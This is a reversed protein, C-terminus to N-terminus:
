VYIVISFYSCDIVVVNTICHLISFRFYNTRSGRENYCRNTRAFMSIFLYIYIHKIYIYIPTVSGPGCGLDFNGDLVFM